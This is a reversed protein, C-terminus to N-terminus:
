KMMPLIGADAKRQVLVRNMDHKITVVGAARDYTFDDMGRALPIYAPIVALTHEPTVNHNNQQEITSVPFRIGLDTMRRGESMFVEQRMLCLLYLVDDVTAAADIDANKVSTGSVTYVSINGAQRDLVLGSKAPATADAKVNVTALLPYDSRTGRRLALRGNVSARPRVSIVETILRKLLTKATAIDSRGLAAEAAILFAEEGKLIAIPKQDTTATGITYYKPDLFDLRPLPAFVNTSNSFTYSQMTNSVSRLGDYVATQLTMPAANIVLNANLVANTKDGLDYYARALALAYVNKKAQDTEFTSASNFYAIAKRLREESAGPASGPTTPLWKYLEAGLLYGYGGLFYLQARMSGTADRDAPVVKEIGYEAMQTLKAIARQMNDVDLDTALLSPLDFIQNSLSSNNFYNDSAMEADVISENLTLALQKNVGSIWVQTSQPSGLYSDDTINPNQVETLSCASLQACCILAFLFIRHKM